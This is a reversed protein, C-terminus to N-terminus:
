PSKAMPAPDPEREWVEGPELLIETGDALTWYVTQGAEIKMVRGNSDRHFRTERPPSSASSCISSNRTAPVCGALAGVSMIALIRRSTRM